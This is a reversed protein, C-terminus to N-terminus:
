TIKSYLDISKELYYKNGTFEMEAIEKVIKKSMASKYSRKSFLADVIDCSAVIQDLHSHATQRPKKRPYGEKKWEHHGIIGSYYESPILKTYDKLIDLSYQPHKKMEEFQEKTLEGSNLLEPSIKLKGIDHLSGVVFLHQIDSRTLGIERGVISSLRGVRMSHEYTIMDHEKLRNLLKNITM